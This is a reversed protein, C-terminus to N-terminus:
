LWEALRLCSNKESCVTRGDRTGDHLRGIEQIVTM